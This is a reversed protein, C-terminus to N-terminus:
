TWCIDPTKSIMSYDAAREGVRGWATLLRHRLPDELEQLCARVDEAM